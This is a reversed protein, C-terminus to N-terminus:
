KIRKVRVRRRRPRDPLLQLYGNIELAVLDEPQAKAEFGEIAYNQGLTEAFDNAVAALAADTPCVDTEDGKPNHEVWSEGFTYPLQFSCYVRFLNLGNEVDCELPEPHVAFKKIGSNKRFTKTLEGVLVTLAADTPEVDTEDGQHEVESKDFNYSPLTFSCFVRFTYLKGSKSLIQSKRSKM